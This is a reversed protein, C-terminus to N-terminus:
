LFLNPKYSDILTMKDCLPTLETTLKGPQPVQSQKKTLINDPKATGCGEATFSFIDNKLLSSKTRNTYVWPLSLNNSSGNVTRINKDAYM